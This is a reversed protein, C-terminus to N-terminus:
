HYLFTLWTSIPFKLLTSRYEVRIATGHVHEHENEYLGEYYLAGSWRLKVDTIRVNDGQGLHYVSCTVEERDHQRAWFDYVRIRAIQHFPVQELELRIHNVEVSSGEPTAPGARDAPVAVPQVPKARACVLAAVVLIAGALVRCSFVRPM